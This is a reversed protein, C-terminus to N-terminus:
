NSSINNEEPSITSGSVLHVHLHPFTQYQGGNIILRYGAQELNFERILQQSVEIFEQYVASQASDVAMWNRYPKKPIIVIHTPYSPRPHTIAMWTNSEYLRRGPILFSVKDIILDIM